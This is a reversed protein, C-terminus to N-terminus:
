DGKYLLFKRTEPLGSQCFLSGLCQEAFKGTWRAEMGGGKNILKYRSELNDVYERIFSPTGFVSCILYNSSRGVTYYGVSGDGDFYGRMFALRTQADEIKPFELNKTKNATVGLDNLRSKFKECRFSLTQTENGRGNVSNYIPNEICFIEKIEGILYADKNSQSIIVSGDKSSISGDAALLGIFWWTELDGEDLLKNENSHYKTVGGGKTSRHILTVGNRHCFQEYRRVSRRAIGLEDAVERKSKFSDNNYVLAFDELTFKANVEERIEDDM